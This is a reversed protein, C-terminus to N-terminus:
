HSLNLINQVYSDIAFKRQLGQANMYRVMGFIPRETWPRDHKGFCWAVGAFGNPDRGDLEYKNNLSLATEYAEEPSRSWELIKKGWYMRMYGHMKGTLLMEKQASNWYVDHTEANEFQQFNYIHERVDQAHLSLTKQAWDPLCFFSDYRPQYFVFNLALERRVILEELFSETNPSQPSHKQVLLAIELPSIHGFHLYPSLNSSVSLSPDKRKESFFLLKKSLFLNLRKQAENEGGCFLPSPSVSTDLSLHSLIKQSTNQLSLSPYHFSLSSLKPKQLPLPILFNKLHTQIKKRFTFASYEEKPSATQVPIVSDSEIQILPCSINKAINERWMKEFRTYGRDTVVLRADRALKELSIHQPDKDIGVFFAIGLSTLNKEVDRLGELLFTYHRTNAQPYAPLLQYFVILPLHHKDAQEISFALAHNFRIRVSAQMWYLIYKGKINESKKNLSFIREDQIM